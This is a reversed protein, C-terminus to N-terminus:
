ALGERVCPFITALLSEIKLLWKLSVLHSKYFDRELLKGTCYCNVGLVYM